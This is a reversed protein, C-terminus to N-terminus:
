RRTNHIGRQILWRLSHVIFNHHKNNLKLEQEMKTSTFKVLNKAQQRKTHAMVSHNIPVLVVCACGSQNAELKSKWQVQQM